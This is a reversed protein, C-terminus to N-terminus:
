FQGGGGAVGHSPSRVGPRVPGEKMWGRMRAHETMDSEKYGWPIYGALSRQEHLKGSLFIPPLQWKRRRVWPPDEQGLSRVRM